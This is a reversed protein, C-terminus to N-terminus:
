LAALPAGPGLLMLAGSNKGGACCLWTCQEDVMLGAPCAVGALALPGGYSRCAGTGTLLQSDVVCPGPALTLTLVRHGEYDSVVLCDGRWGVGFPRAPLSAVDDAVTLPTVHWTQPCIAALGATAADDEAGYCTVAILGGGYALGVPQRLLPLTVTSLLSLSDMGRSFSLIAVCSLERSSVAVRRAAPDLVCLAFPTMAEQSGDVSPLRLARATAQQPQQPSRIVRLARCGTDAILLDECMFAVGAPACLLTELASHPSANLVASPDAPNNHQGCVVDLQVPNSMTIRFVVHADVDSIFPVREPSLCVFLPRRLLGHSSAAWTRHTEPVLRTSVGGSEADAQRLCEAV